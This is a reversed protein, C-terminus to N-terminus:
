NSWRTGMHRTHRRPILALALEAGVRPRRPGRARSGPPITLVSYPVVGAPLWPRPLPGSWPVFRSRVGLRLSTTPRRLLGVAADLPPRGEEAPKGCGAQGHQQAGDDGRDAGGIPTEVPVVAALAVWFALVHADDAADDAADDREDDQEAGVVAAAVDGSPGSRLDTGLGPPRTPAFNPTRLESFLKGRMGMLCPVSVPAPIMVRM